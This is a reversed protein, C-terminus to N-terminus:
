GNEVEVTQIKRLWGASHQMLLPLGIRQRTLKSLKRDLNLTLSGPKRLVGFSHLYLPLSTPYEQSLHTLRERLVNRRHNKHYGTQYVGNEISLANM